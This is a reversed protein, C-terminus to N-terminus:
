LCLGFKNRMDGDVCMVMLCRYDYARLDGFGLKM